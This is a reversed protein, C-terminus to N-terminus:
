LFRSFPLRMSMISNSAAMFGRNVEGIMNEAPVRCNEFFLECTPIGRMGMKRETRGITFCTMLVLALMTTNVLWESVLPRGHALLQILLAVALPLAVFLPILTQVEINM